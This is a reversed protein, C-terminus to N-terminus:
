SVTDRQDKIPKMFLLLEEDSQSAALFNGIEQPRIVSNKPPVTYCMM